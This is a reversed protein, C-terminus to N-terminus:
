VVSKRDRLQIKLKDSEQKKVAKIKISHLGKALRVESGPEVRNGGIELAAVVNGRNEFVAACYNPIYILGSWEASFNNGNFSINEFVPLASEAELRTNGFSYVAKLGRVKTLEENSITYVDFMKGFGEHTYTDKNLNPFQSRFLM